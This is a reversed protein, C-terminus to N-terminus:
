VVNTGKILYVGRTNDRLYFDAAEPKYVTCIIYRGGGSFTRTGTGDISWWDYERDTKDNYLRIRCNSLTTKPCRKVTISKSDPTGTDFWGAVFYDHNETYGTNYYGYSTLARNNLLVPIGGIVLV